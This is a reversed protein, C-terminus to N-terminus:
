EAEAGERDEEVGLAPFDEVREAYRPEMEENKEGRPRQGDFHWREDQEGASGYVCTM